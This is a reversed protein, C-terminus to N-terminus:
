LKTVIIYFTTNLFNKYFNPVTKIFISFKMLFITKNHMKLLLFVLVLLYENIFYKNIFVVANKKLCFDNTM